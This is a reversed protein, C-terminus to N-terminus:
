VASAIIGGLVEQAVASLVCTVWSLDDFVLIALEHVLDIDDVWDVVVNIRVQHIEVNGIKTSMSGAIEVTYDCIMVSDFVDIETGFDLLNRSSPNSTSTM